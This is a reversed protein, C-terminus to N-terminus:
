AGLAERKAKNHGIIAGPPGSTFFTAAVYWWGWWGSIAGWGVLGVEVVVGLGHIPGFIPSLSEVDAVVGYILVALMVLDAIAIWLVAKLVRERLQREAPDLATPPVSTTPASM